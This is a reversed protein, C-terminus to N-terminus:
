KKLVRENGKRSTFGIKDLYDLVPVGGWRGYGLIEKSDALTISRKHLIFEKVSKKIEELAELSLFRKDSLRILKKQFYLYDLLNQIEDKEFKKDHLKWITDASFPVVGTKQAYKFLLSLLHEQQKTFKGKLNQFQFGGDIKVLRGEDCLESLMKKLLIEDFATDLRNTIEVANLNKKLPNKRIVSEITNLIEKKGSNYHDKKFAGEGKLYIFEGKSVRSSIEAEFYTIPLGTAQALEGATIFRTQNRSFFCDVFEKMDGQQLAKLCPIMTLAKAERFKEQPVELVTGGAIITNLNLPSVVFPDRPLAAIPKMLRFQVLGKDGPSLKKNDMLVAMANTVSTGLYLRVRQRNKLTQGSRKLVQLEVNLLYGPKVVGQEALATGRKVAKVSIKHLNVGVRQGAVAISIKKGHSEMSRARTILGTPMLQLSDDQKLTGSLVTGSVVTGIGTFRKIQDIWLRMPTDTMKCPIDKIEGDICFLIDDLGTLDPASFSIVPKGEFITGTLAEKIELRGIELTEEDVLDTKSLVVFGGKVKFFQLVELHELTQPMVGDDAAVVLIAMDVSNLGRITNKLFDTHGPVDILSVRQGSPLKLPAIGSEISLGRVKEEQLRDTDIGTMCRVLASKGHDVHGAVGITIHKEM